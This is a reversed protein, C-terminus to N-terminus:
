ATTVLLEEVDFTSHGTQFGVRDHHDRGHAGELNVDTPILHFRSLRQRLLDGGLIERGELFSRYVEETVDLVYAFVADGYHHGHVSEGGIGFLFQFRNTLNREFGSRQLRDDGVDM